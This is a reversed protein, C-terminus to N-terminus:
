METDKIVWHGGKAAGVREVAGINKLLGISKEVGRTTMGIAEGIAKASIKPNSRMLSLIKAQTQNEGFKEGFKEGFEDQTSTQTAILEDQHKAQVTISDLLASLTFEIFGSSNDTQQGAHLADYYEPRKEYVVSEMPIWAFIPNWKALLLTQWLRGMRGNGDAFPHITEIEYHLVASKLVPHLDTEKAWAFLEAILGHVFQPRAGVHIAVGGDFVGVDGSRFKGSEKVLGDTMLKHAKLFDKIAYPNFAMAKDYAEYANKVEKIETQKGAVLKGGIVAAVESLSLTNGEIALSSHISRVRNKRHLKIDRGWETGFELRTVAEVIKALCDAAEMTINFPPKRTM